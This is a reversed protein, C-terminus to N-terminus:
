SALLLLLTFETGRDGGPTPSVINITGQMRDVLEKAIALGLGTGEISGQAQIGRYHRTFLKDLDEVPIGLGTDRICIQIRPPQSPLSVDIDVFGGSPTYKLANDILNSLVERLASPTARIPPLDTPIHTHFNLNRDQSIAEATIIIPALIDMLHCSEIEWNSEPLLLNESAPSNTTPKAMSPQLSARELTDEGVVTIDITTELYELLEQLRDSERVISTAVTQNPDSPQLRRILLKGFTRIAMLPNRLQHLLNHLLDRQHLQIEQQRQLELTLWNRRKDITGAIAITQAIHQIETQEETGWPQSERTTVLVGLITGDYMLPLLIQCRQNQYDLEEWKRPERNEATSSSGIEMPVPLLDNPSNALAMQRDENSALQKAELAYNPSLSVLKDTALILESTVTPVSQSRGVGGDPYVVVPLLKSEGTGEVEETIYVISLSAGLGETLLRLQSRCLAMFESSAPISMMSVDPTSEGQDFRVTV